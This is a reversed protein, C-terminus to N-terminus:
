GPHARDIAPAPPAPRARARALRATQRDILGHSRRRAIVRREGARQERRRAARRVRETLTSQWDHGADGPFTETM